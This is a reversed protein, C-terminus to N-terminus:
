IELDHTYYNSVQNLLKYKKTNILDIFINFTYIYMYISFVHVDYVLNM